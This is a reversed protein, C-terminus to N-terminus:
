QNALGTPDEPKHPKPFEGLEESLDLDGEVRQSDEELRAPLLKQKYELLKSKVGQSVKFEQDDIKVQPEGRLLLTLEQAIIEGSIRLEEDMGDTKINHEKLIEKLSLTEKTIKIKEVFQIRKGEDSYKYNLYSAGKIILDKCSKIAELAGSFFGFLSGTEIKIIKLPIGHDKKTLTQLQNYISIIASIKNSFELANNQSEFYISFTGLNEKPEPHEVQLTSSITYLNSKLQALSDNLRRSITLLKLTNSSSRVKFFNEYNSKFSHLLPISPFNTQLVEKSIGMESYFHSLSEELERSSNFVAELSHENVIFERIQAIENDLKQAFDLITNGKKDTIDFLMMITSNSFKSLKYLFEIFSSHKNIISLTREILDHLQYSIM